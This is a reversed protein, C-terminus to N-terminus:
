VLPDITKKSSYPILVVLLTSRPIKLVNTAKDILQFTISPTIKNHKKEGKFVEAPICAKRHPKGRSKRTVLYATIVPGLITLVL